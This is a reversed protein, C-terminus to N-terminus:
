TKWAWILRLNELISPLLSFSHFPFLYVLYQKPLVYLKLDLGPGKQFNFPLSHTVARPGCAWVLVTGPLGSRM